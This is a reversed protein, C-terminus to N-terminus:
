KGGGDNLWEDLNFAEMAEKEEEKTSKIEKIEPLKLEFKFDLEPMKLEFGFYNAIKLVSTKTIIYMTIIFGIFLISLGIEFFMEWFM